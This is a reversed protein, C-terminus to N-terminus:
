VSNLDQSVQNQWRTLLFRALPSVTPAALPPTNALKKNSAQESHPEPKKAFVSAATDQLGQLSSEKSSGLRHLLRGILVECSGPIEHELDMLSDIFAHVTPREFKDGAAEKLSPIVLSSIAPSAVSISARSSSQGDSLQRSKRGKQMDVNESQVEQSNVGRSRHEHTEKENRNIVPRERANGKRLGAQLAAKAEALNIASDELSANSAKEQIGLRSRSSRPTEPDESQSRVVTGSSSMDEYSSFRSPPKSNHNTAVSHLQSARPSRLM